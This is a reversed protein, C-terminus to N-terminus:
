TPRSNQSQRLSSAGSGTGSGGGGGGGGSPGTSSKGRLLDQFFSQLVESQKTTAAASPTGPSTAGGAADRLGNSSVGAAGQAVQPSQPRSLGSSTRRQNPPFDRSERRRSKTDRSADSSSSGAADLGLDDKRALGMAREVGPGSLSSSQMPGVISRLATTTDHNTSGQSSNTRSFKSRPDAAGAGSGTEKQLTAYHQALFAQSDPPAVKTTHLHNSAKTNWDGVVDEWLRCASGRNSGESEQQEQQMEREVEDIKDKPVNRARRREEVSCDWEWGQATLQPSFGERLAVIKGWSDWGSPVLLVDRETTSAAHNFAIRTTSSPETATRAAFLRHLLYQRLVDFSSQRSHATSFLAAGYKLCITRLVQQIYDFQEEKFDRDRELKAVNDCKTLVVVINVGLNEDLNGDDLPLLDKGGAVMGLPASVPVIVPVSADPDINNADNAEGTQGSQPAEDTGDAPVGTLISGFPANPPTYSRIYTEM